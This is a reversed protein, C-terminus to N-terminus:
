QLRELLETTLHTIDGAGLTLLVDQPRLFDVFFAVLDKRSVYRPDKPISVRNLIFAHDVGDIPAEGASYVDTLILADAGRFADKWLDACHLTRTYRHPQFAVVLQANGIARKLAAITAQIEVPHHGYDDYFVIENAKGKYEMRRKIGRFERFARYLIEKEIGLQLGLGFVAAANLVNHKGILSIVIEKWIRGQFSLSFREGWEEEKWQVIRLANHPEFGYSFGSLHMSTLAPDDGCWFFHSESIVKRAFTKFGEVLAETTKWYDFHDGDCNTMIAGFPSYHLFTGDSEDAEAVFDKGVDGKGNRGEIISIGGIAYSPHMGAVHLAHALLSTTTTKGHIGTVLLARKDRMLEALFVSRHMLPLGRRKAALLEPHDERIASGFIVRSAKEINEPAHAICIEAGRKKLLETMESPVKESGSVPVGRDLLIMALASM